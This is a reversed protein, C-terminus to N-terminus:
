FEESEQAFSYGPLGQGNAGNQVRVRVAAETEAGTKRLMAFTSLAESYIKTILFTEGSGDKKWVQGIQLKRKAM